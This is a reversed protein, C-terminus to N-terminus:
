ENEDIKMFSQDQIRKSEYIIFEFSFIDEGKGGEMQRESREEYKTKM